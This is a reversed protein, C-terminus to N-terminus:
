SLILPLAVSAGLVFSVTLLLRAAIKSLREHPLSLRLSLKWTLHLHPDTHKMSYRRHNPQKEGVTEGRSLGAAPAPPM